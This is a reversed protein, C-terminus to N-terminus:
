FGPDFSVDQRLNWRLLVYFSTLLLFDGWYLKEGQLHVKKLLHLQLPYHCQCRLYLLRLISEGRGVPLRRLLELIHRHGGECCEFLIFSVRSSRRDPNYFTRRM